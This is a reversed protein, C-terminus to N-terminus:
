TIILTIPIVVICFIVNNAMTPCWKAITGIKVMVTDSKGEFTVGQSKIM